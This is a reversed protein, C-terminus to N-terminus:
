HTEQDAPEHARAGERTAPPERPLASQGGPVRHVRAAASGRGDEGVAGAAGLGGQLRVLLVKVSEGVVNRGVYLM